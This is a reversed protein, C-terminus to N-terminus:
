QKRSRLWARRGAWVIVVVAGAILLAYFGDDAEKPERLDQRKPELRAVSDKFKVLKTLTTDKGLIVVSTDLRKGKLGPQALSFYSLTLCYVVLFLIRTM